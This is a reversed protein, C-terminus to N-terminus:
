PRCIGAAFGPFISNIWDHPELEGCTTGFPECDANTTCFFECHGPYAGDAPFEDNVCLGDPAGAIPSDCPQGQIECELSCVGVDAGDRVLCMESCSNQEKDCLTGLAGSEVAPASGSDAEETKGTGDSSEGSEGSSSADDSDSKMESSDPTGSSDAEAMSNGADVVGTPEDPDRMPESVSEGGCSVLVSASCAVPVALRRALLSVFM